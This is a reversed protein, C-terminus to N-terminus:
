TLKERESIRTFRNTEPRHRVKKAGPSHILLGRCDPCYDVRKELEKRAPKVTKGACQLSTCFAYYM